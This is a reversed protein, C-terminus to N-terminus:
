TLYARCHDSAFASFSDGGGQQPPSPQTITAPSTAAVPLNQQPQQSGALQDFIDAM